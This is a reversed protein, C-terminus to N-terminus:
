CNVHGASLGGKAQDPGSCVPWDLFNRAPDWDVISPIDAPDIVIAGLRKLEGTADQMGKKQEMTLGGRDSLSSGSSVPDYFFAGM